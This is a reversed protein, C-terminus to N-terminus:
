PRIDLTHYSTSSYVRLLRYIPYRHTDLLPLVATGAGIAMNHQARAPEPRVPVSDM